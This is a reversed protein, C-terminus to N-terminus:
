ASEFLILEVEGGKEIIVKHKSSEGATIWLGDGRHYKKISGNFDVKMTGSLVYGVHGTLCWEEEVFGDVFKLHRMRKEGNSYVKQYVGEKSNEWVMEEFHIQNENM